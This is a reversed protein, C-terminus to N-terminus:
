EDPDGEDLMDLFESLGEHLVRPADEALGGRWRYRTGWTLVKWGFEIPEGEDSTRVQEILLMLTAQQRIRSPCPLVIIAQDGMDISLINCGGVGDCLEDTVVPLKMGALPKDGTLWSLWTDKGVSYLSTIVDM